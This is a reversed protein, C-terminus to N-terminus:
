HLCPCFSFLFFILLFFGDFAASRPIDFDKQTHLLYFYKSNTLDNHTDNGFMLTEINHQINMNLLDNFLSIRQNYYLQYELLYHIDDEIPSGCSFKPYNM